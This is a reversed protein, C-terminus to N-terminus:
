AIMRGYYVTQSLAKSFSSATLKITNGARVVIHHPYQDAHNRVHEIIAFDGHLGKTKHPVCAILMDSFQESNVLKDFDYRTIRKYDDVIVLHDRDILYEEAITYMQTKDIRSAGIVLVKQNFDFFYQNKYNREYDDKGVLKRVTDEIRGNENAKILMCAIQESVQQILKDMNRNNLKM